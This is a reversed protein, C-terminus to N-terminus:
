HARPEGTYADVTIMRTGGEGNVYLTDGHALRTPLFRFAATHSRANLAVGGDVAITDSGVQRQHNDYVTYSRSRAQIVVLRAEGEQLADLRARTLRNVIESSAAEVPNGATELIAPVSVASIVALLAIVVLM